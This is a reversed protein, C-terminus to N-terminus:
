GGFYKDFLSKDGPIRLLQLGEVIRLPIIEKRVSMSKIAEPYNEKNRIISGAINAPLEPLMSDDTFFREVDYDKERSLQAIAEAIKKRFRPIGEVHNHPDGCIIKVENMYQPDYGMKEVAEEPTVPVAQGKRISSFVITKESILPLFDQDQSYIMVGGSFDKYTKWLTYIIDDSEWGPKQAFLVDRVISVIQMVDRQHNFVDEPHVRGEKYAPYLKKRFSESPSDLVIVIPSHPYNDRLLFVREVFKKLAGVAPNEKSAYYGNYMLWSFDVLIIPEGKDAIASLEFRKM